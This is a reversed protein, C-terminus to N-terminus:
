VAADIFELAADICAFESTARFHDVGPLVRLTADPLAAVLPDPPGAFDKDGIVVLTPCAVRAIEDTTFMQHPRRLLAAMARPDNGASRALQVFLRSTLDEPDNGQEFADVLNLAMDNRFLNEGVGIVFLRGFRSPDRAAIRLLLQAGLSFGIADVTEDPIAEEVFRDLNAYADPEHPAPAEGHGLVDIPVTRRGADALLDLWGPARWGHESSSGLGHVLVVPETRM